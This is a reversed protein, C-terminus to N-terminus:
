KDTNELIEGPTIPANPSAFECRKAELPNTHRKECVRYYDPDHLPNLLQVLVSSFKGFDAWVIWVIRFFLWKLSTLKDRNLVLGLM